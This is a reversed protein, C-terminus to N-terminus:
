PHKWRILAEVGVIGKTNIDVVPQYFLVFDRHSLAKRLMNELALRELARANM